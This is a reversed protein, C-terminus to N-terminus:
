ELHIGGTLGNISITKGKTADTPFKRDRIYINTVFGSLDLGGDTKFTVAGDGEFVVELPLENTKDIVAGFENTAYYYSSTPSVGAFYVFTVQERHTIAWQRLLSLTSHVSRVSGRMGAGRGIGVFAPVSIAIILAMLVIVVLLEILTFARSVRPLGSFGGRDNGRFHSDLYQNKRISSERDLRSHCDRSDHPPRGIVSPISLDNKM